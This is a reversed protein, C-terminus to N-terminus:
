DNRSTKNKHRQSSNRWTSVSLPTPTRETQESASATPSTPPPPSTSPLPSSSPPPSASPPPSTPTPTSAQLENDQNISNSLSGSPIGASKIFPVHFSLLLFTKLIQSQYFM